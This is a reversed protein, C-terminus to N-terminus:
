CNEWKSFALEEKNYERSLEYTYGIYWVEESTKQIVFKCNHFTDKFKGYQNTSYFEQSNEKNYNINEKQLNNAFEVAKQSTHSIIGVTGYTYQESSIFVYLKM